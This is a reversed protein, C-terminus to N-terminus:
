KFEEKLYWTKEVKNLDAVQKLLNKFVEMTHGTVRQKFKEVLDKSSASGDQEVMFERIDAVLKVHDEKPKNKERLNV